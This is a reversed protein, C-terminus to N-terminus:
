SYSRPPLNYERVKNRMTRTCIGLAQAARTRNGGHAELTEELLRREMERLSLGAAAAQGPASQQREHCADRGMLSPVRKADFFEPGVTESPHLTVARRVVNELERVNGPWEHLMLRSMLEASFSTEAARGRPAYARLFHEVLGPIDERRQRLPPLTLPVVNLRYYLDARFKGQEVLKALPQNTTAIVRVDVRLPKTDGLRDVEREQLTRLLKPQLMLPMEGIEDLLLTGTHALEFKGPKATLAGTFAGRAHGFLESELLTDPFAACNVAVMPRSRRASAQHIMRALLEKGTGSEAEILIDTDTQAAMRAREVVGALAASKGALLHINRGVDCSSRRALVREAADKLQTFAVPKVLYDCAGEHIARVAEPVTAFATLFIVAVEPSMQRIERMVGLGDGDPMRMDTVVLPCPTRRFKALADGAGYATEVDWGDRRFNAELAARMPAEDDVVLVHNM